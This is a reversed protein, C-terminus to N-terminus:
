PRRAQKPRTAARSATGHGCRQPFFLSFRLKANGDVRRFAWHGALDLDIDEMLRNAAEHSVAQGTVAAVVKRSSSIRTRMRIRRQSAM